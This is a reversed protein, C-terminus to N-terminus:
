SVAKVPAPKPFFDTGFGLSVITDHARIQGTQDDFVGLECLKFDEPHRGPVTNTDKVLDQFSRLAQGVTGTFFPTGYSDSKVDFLAFVRLEM